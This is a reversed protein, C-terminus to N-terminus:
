INNNLYLQSTLVFKQAQIILNKGFNIQFIAINPIPIDVSQIADKKLSIPIEGLTTSYSGISKHLPANARICGIMVKSGLAGAQNLLSATMINRVNVFPSKSIKEGFKRGIEGFILVNSKKPLKDIVEDAKRQFDDGPRYGAVPEAVINGVYERMFPKLDQQNQIVTGVGFGVMRNDPSFIGSAVWGGTKHYVKLAAKMDYDGQGWSNTPSKFIGASLAVILATEKEREYEINRVRYGALM